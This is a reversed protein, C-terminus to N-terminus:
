KEVPLAVHPNECWASSNGEELRALVAESRTRSADLAQKLQAESPLSAALADLTRANEGRTKLDRAAIAARYLLLLPDFGDALTRAQDDFAAREEDRLAEPCARWLREFAPRAARELRIREARDRCLRRMAEPSAADAPADTGADLLGFLLRRLRAPLDPALQAQRASALVQRCAEPLGAQAGDPACRQAAAKLCCLVPILVLQPTEAAALDLLLAPRMTMENQM